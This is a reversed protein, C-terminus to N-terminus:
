SQSKVPLLEGLEIGAASIHARYPYVEVGVALAEYFLAAYAPDIVEAPAFCHGDARQVLYFTAAREGGRVIDMLARLHKQGRETAADPFCAVEDEVMTVNKCEVWLPPLGKEAPATLCADLRSDGRKAERQLHSYGAAFALRQAAFAAALMKNPTATNVGVWFGQPKHDYAEPQEPCPCKPGPLPLPLPLPEGAPFFPRGGDMWVGEQTWALKRGPNTAPSVMVPMGPRTLGLMSGSNNSHVWTEAGRLWLAVSFRKERRVFRGVACGCPYPLLPSGGAAPQVTTGPQVASPPLISQAAAETPCSSPNVHKM